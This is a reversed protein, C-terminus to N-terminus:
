VFFLGGHVRSGCKGSYWMSYDAGYEAFIQFITCGLQVDVAIGKKKLEANVMDIYNKITPNEPFITPPFKWLESLSKLSNGVVLVMPFASLSAVVAIFAFLAITGGRSRNLRKM